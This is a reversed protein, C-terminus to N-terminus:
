LKKLSRSLALLATFDLNEARESEAIHASALTDLIAQKGFLAGTKGHLLNNRVTKRRQTFLDHVMQLFLSRESPLVLPVERKIMRVVVSDM